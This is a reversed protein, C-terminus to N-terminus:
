AGYKRALENGEQQTVARMSVKDRKNGVIILQVYDVAREILEKVWFNISDFSKRNTIDFVVLAGLAKRIQSFLLWFYETAVSRFRQQGATDWIQAKVVKKNSLPILKSKYELGM